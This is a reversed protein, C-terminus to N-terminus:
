VEVLSTPTMAHSSMFRTVEDSRPMANSCGRRSVVLAAAASGRQVARSVNKGEFLTTLFSALFADGAGVPKLAEVPFIGSVTEEGDHFTIAGDQGMKYVCIRPGVECLSRAHESDPRVVGRLVAFEADNGVVISSQKAAMLYVESAEKASKWSYPRYDLDLVVPVGAERARTITQFTVTRSPERALATGTVVLATLGDVEMRDPLDGALDFDAAGNRYIVTEHDDLRTESLAISTRTEARSCSVLKQDIQFAALQTKCFRGVPDDSLASMLSVDVGLRALGAAINAASGGLMASFNTADAIKTGAPEPYLDMGARGIVVIRLPIGISNSDTM